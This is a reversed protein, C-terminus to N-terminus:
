FSESGEALVFFDASFLPKKPLTAFIKRDGRNNWCLGAIGTSWSYDNTSFPLAFLQGRGRKVGPLTSPRSFGSTVSGATQWFPVPSAFFRGRLAFVSDV